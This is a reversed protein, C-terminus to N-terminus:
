SINLHVWIHLKVCKRRDAKASIHGCFKRRVCVPLCFCASQLFFLQIMNIKHKISEGSGLAHLDTLFQFYFIGCTYYSQSSFFDECKLIKDLNQKDIHLQFYMKKSLKYPIKLKETKSIKNERFFVFFCINDIFQLFIAIKFLEFILVASPM